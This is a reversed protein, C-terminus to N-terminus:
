ISINQFIYPYKQKCEKLSKVPNNIKVPGGGYSPNIAFELQLLVREGEVVPLGKHYGRTDEFIITGSKGTHTVIDDCPYNKKITEYQKISIFYMSYKNDNNRIAQYLRQKGKKFRYKHQLKRAQFDTTSGVYQLQNVKIIYVYGKM